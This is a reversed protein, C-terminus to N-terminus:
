ADQLAAEFRQDVQREGEFVDVPVDDSVTEDADM